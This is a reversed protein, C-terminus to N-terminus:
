PTVWSKGDQSLTLVRGGAVIYYKDDTGQWYRTGRSDTSSRQVTLSRSAFFKSIEEPPQGQPASGARQVEAMGVDSQQREEPLFSELSLLKDIVPQVNKKKADSLIPDITDRLRGVTIKPDNEFEKTLIGSIEAVQEKTLVPTKGTGQASVEKLLSSFGRNNTTLHAQKLWGSITPIGIEKEAGLERLLKKKMPYSYDDNTIVDMADITAAAERSKRETQSEKALTRAEVQQQHIFTRLMTDFTRRYREGDPTNSFGDPSGIMDFNLAGPKGEQLNEFAQDMQDAYGSNRVQDQKQFQAQDFRVQSELKSAIKDRDEPTLSPFFKTFDPNDVLNMAYDWGQSKGIQKLGEEMANSDILSDTGALYGSPDKVLGLDILPQLASRVGKKRDGNSLANNAIIRKITDESTNVMRDTRAKVQNQRIDAYTKVDLQDWSGQLAALADQNTVGATGSKWLADKARNWKDTHGEIDPDTALQAQFDIAGRQLKDWASNYQASSEAQNLRDLFKLGTSALSRGFWSFDRVV